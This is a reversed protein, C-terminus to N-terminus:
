HCGSSWVKLYDVVFFFFIFFLLVRQFNSWAMGASWLIFSFSLSFLFLYESRALYSYFSHFIFTIIFIIVIPVTPVTVLSNTCPTSSKSILPRTFVMWVANNLDALISLLLGSFKFLSATVQVGTSFWWSTNTYFVRLLNFYYDCLM